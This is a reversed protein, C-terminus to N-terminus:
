PTLPLRSHEVLGRPGARELVAVADRGYLDLTMIANGFYPGVRREWEVPLSPVGARRALWRTLRTVTRSWGARFPVRVVRPAMNHVPSCTLQHVASRVRDPFAAQAVYSHHVDGSLVSITAPHVDARSVRAILAALRDFSTRFAAWHELDVAQRIREAWRGRIGERRCALENMSELDSIAPPLLWPLSSGILLHDFDGEAHQEVWTFEDEDLMSRRGAGLIRGARTDVVLLRIRGFQRDYSWRAQKVGELEDDAVEAFRRLAETRDGPQDLVEAVVPDTALAEPGLNGLHQYVWYSMFAGRLREAWWPQRRMQERWVDSTNWDDRVDHDDFIMCVPITSLLWRVSPESWTERYLHAYEEFDAVEVGPPRSLDRRQALWRRTEATTEDAYVQDGLLLLAQPWDRESLERMREAYRILADDGLSPHTSPQRCSGFVLRFHGEDGPLTRIRSAPFRSGPEPWVTRDDLRVEYETSTGPELGTLVVLAYHHGCVEFTPVRATHVAVVCPGSTEVWVTASSEDVHRLLPGLLLEVHTM